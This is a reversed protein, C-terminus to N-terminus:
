CGSIVYKVPNSAVGNVFVQAGYHGNEGAGSGPDYEFDGSSDTTGVVESWVEV